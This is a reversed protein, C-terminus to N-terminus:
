AVTGEFISADCSSLNNATSKVEFVSVLISFLLVAIAPLMMLIVLTTLSFM